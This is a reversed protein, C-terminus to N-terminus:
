ALARQRIDPKPCLGGCTATGPICYRLCCVKRRRLEPLRGPGEYRIAGKLPNVRGDPLHDRDIFLRSQRAGECSLREDEALWNTLWELYHCANGWIVRQSIGGAQALVAALPILHDNMAQYLSLEPLNRPTKPISLQIAAPKGQDDFVVGSGDLPMFMRGTVLVSAALPLCLSAFYYQSWLSVIAGRPAQPQSAAFKLLLGELIRMDTLRAFPIRTRLDDDQALLMLLWDHQGALLDRLEHHLHHSM